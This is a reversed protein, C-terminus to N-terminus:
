GTAAACTRRQISSWRGVGLDHGRGRVRSGGLVDRGALDVCRHGGREGSLPEAQGHEGVLDGIELAGAGAEHEDRVRGTGFRVPTSRVETTSCSGLSGPESTRAARTRWARFEIQRADLGPRCAPFVCRSRGSPSHPDCRRRAPRRASCPSCRKACTRKRPDHGATDSCPTGGTDSSSSARHSSRSRRPSSQPHAASQDQGPVALRHRVDGPPEVRFERTRLEGLEADFLGAREPLIEDLAPRRQEDRRLCETSPLRGLVRCRRHRELRDDVLAHVLHLDALELVAAVLLRVLQEHLDVLLPM